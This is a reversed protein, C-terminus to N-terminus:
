SALKSLWNDLQSNFLTKLYVSRELEGSSIYSRTYKARKSWKIEKLKQLAIENRTCPNENFLIRASRVQTM